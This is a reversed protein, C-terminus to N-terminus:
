GSHMKTPALTVFVVHSRKDGLPRDFLHNLSATMNLVCLRIHQAKRELFIPRLIPM